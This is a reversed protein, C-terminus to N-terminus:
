SDHTSCLRLMQAAGIGAAGLLGVGGECEEEEWRCGWWTGWGGAGPQLREDLAGHAGAGREGAEQQDGQQDQGAGRRQLRHGWHADGGPGAGPERETAGGQWGCDGRVRAAAASVAGGQHVDPHRPAACRLPTPPNLTLPLQRAFAVAVSGVRRYPRSRGPRRSCRAGETANKLGRIDKEIKKLHGAFEGAEQLMMENSCSLGWLAARDAALRRRDALLRVEAPLSLQHLATGGALGVVGVNSVSHQSYGPLRAGWGPAM